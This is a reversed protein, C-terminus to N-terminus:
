EDILAVKREARFPREERGVDRRDEFAEVKRREGFREASFREHTHLGAVVARKKEGVFLDDLEANRGFRDAAAHTATVYSAPRDGGRLPHEPRRAGAPLIRRAPKAAEGTRTADALDLEREDARLVDPDFHRPLIDRAAHGRD